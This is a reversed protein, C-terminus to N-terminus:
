QTELLWKRAQRTTEEMYQNTNTSGKKKGFLTHQVKIRQKIKKMDIIYECKTIRKRKEIYPIKSEHEVRLLLM